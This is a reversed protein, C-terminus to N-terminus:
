RAGEGRWAKVALGMWEKACQYLRALAISRPVLLKPSWEEAAGRTAPDSPLPNVKFGLARCHRVARPLHMATSGITLAIAARSESPPRGRRWSRLLPSAGALAGALALSSSRFRM